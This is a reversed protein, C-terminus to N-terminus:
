PLRGLGCVGPLADIAVTASARVSRKALGNSISVCLPAQPSACSTGRVPSWEHRSLRADDPELVAAGVAGRHDAALRHTQTREHAFIQANWRAERDGRAGVALVNGVILEGLRDLAQDRVSRRVRDALQELAAHGRRREHVLNQARVRAEAAGTLRDGHAGARGGFVQRIRRKGPLLLGVQPQEAALLHHL